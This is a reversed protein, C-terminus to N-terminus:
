TTRKHIAYIGTVLLLVGAGVAFAKPAISKKPMIGEIAKIHQEVGVLQNEAYGIFDPFIYALDDYSAPPPMPVLGGSLKSRKLAHSWLLFTDHTIWLFSQSLTFPLDYPYTGKGNIIKGKRFDSPKLKEPPTVFVPLNAKAGSKFFAAMDKLVALIKEPTDTRSDLIMTTVHGLHGLGVHQCTLM